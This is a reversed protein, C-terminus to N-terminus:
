PERDALYLAVMTAVSSLAATLLLLLGIDVIGVPPSM